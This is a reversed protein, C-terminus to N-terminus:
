KKKKMRQVIDPPYDQAEAVRAPSGNLMARMQGLRYPFYPIGLKITFVKMLLGTILQFLALACSMTDIWILLQMPPHRGTDAEFLKPGIKYLYLMKTASLGLVFFAIQSGIAEKRKLYHNIRLKIEDMQFPMIRKSEISAQKFGLAASGLGLLLVVIMYKMMNRDETNGRQFYSLAVYTSILSALYWLRSPRDPHTLGFLWRSDWMYLYLLIEM